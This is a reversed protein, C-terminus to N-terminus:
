GVSLASWKANTTDSVNMYAAGSGTDVLLCGKAYGDDGDSIDGGIVFCRGSTVDALAFVDDSVEDYTISADKGDGFYLKLDDDVRINGGEISLVSDTNDWDITVDEDDGFTLNRDDRMVVKTPFRQMAVGKRDNSLAM